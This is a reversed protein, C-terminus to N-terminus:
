IYLIRYNRIICICKGYLYIWGLDIGSSLRGRSPTRRILSFRWTRRLSASWRGTHGLYYLQRLMKQRCHIYKHLPSLSLSRACVMSASKTSNYVTISTENGAPCNSVSPPCYTSPPPGWIYFNGGRASISGFHIPSASRVSMLSLHFEDSPTQATVSAGLLAIATVLSSILQM